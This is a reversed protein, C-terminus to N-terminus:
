RTFTDLPESGAKRLAKEAKEHLKFVEQRVEVASPSRGLLDVLPQWVDSSLSARKAASAVARRIPEAFRPSDAYIALLLNTKTAVELLAAHDGGHREALQNGVRASESLLTSLRESKTRTSSGSEVDPVDVVLLDAIAQLQWGEADASPDPLDPLAALSAKSGLLWALRRTNGPELPAPDLAPNPAPNFSRLSPESGTSFQQPPTPLESREARPKSESGLRFGKEPEGPPDIQLDSAATDVPQPAAPQEFRNEMAPLEEPEAPAASPTQPLTQQPPEEARMWEPEAQNDTTTSSTAEATSEFEPTPDREPAVDPGESNAGSMLEGFLDAANAPPPNAVAPETSEVAPLTRPPTKSAETAAPEPEELDFLDREVQALAASSSPTEGRPEPGEASATQDGSADDSSSIVGFMQEYDPGEDNEQESNAYRDGTEWPLTEAAETSKADDSSAIPQETQSRSSGYRDDTSGLAYSQSSEGPQDDPEASVDEAEEEALLDTPVDVEPPSFAPAVEEGETSPKASSAAENGAPGYAVETSCGIFILLLYAIIGCYSRNRRTIAVNCNTM